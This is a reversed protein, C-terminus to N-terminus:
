QQRPSLDCREAATLLRSCTLRLRNSVTDVALGHAAQKPGSAARVAWPVAAAVLERQHQSQSGNLALDYFMTQSHLACDPTCVFATAELFTVLSQGGSKGAARSGVGWCRGELIARWGSGRFM